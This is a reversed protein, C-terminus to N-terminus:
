ATRRTQPGHLHSKAPRPKPVGDTIRAYRGDSKVVLFEEEVLTDLIEGCAARDVGCLRHAQEITLRLGPMEVFEARIRDLARQM